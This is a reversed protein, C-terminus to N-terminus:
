HRPSLTVLCLPVCMAEAAECLLPITHGSLRGRRLCNRTVHLLGVPVHPSGSADVAISSLVYSFCPLPSRALLPSDVWSPPVSSLTRPPRERLALSTPLPSPHFKICKLWPKRPAHLLVFPLLLALAGYFALERPIHTPMSGTASPNGSVTFPSLGHAFM